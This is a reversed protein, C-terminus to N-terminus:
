WLAPTTVAGGVITMEVRLDTLAEPPTDLPSGSLVAFDAWKGPTLSGRNTEDGSAIAGGMTYAYLAERATIAQAPAVQEGAVDKRLIAAQMGLLPNDNKVVPADSSLAVELGADLMARVPYTGPLLSDPLYKRFNGGLEYIFITQPVVIVGAARARRLHDPTPLGFHEIRHRKGPLKEYVNLVQEIAVDGIAHIGIRLGAQHAELALEYLEELEFRPVGTDNKHRYPISLAATAGSLGGDAFFKVSDVHLHDSHYKEPLPLTQTGGDPRRIKMVNLRNLLKKEADMKQYVALLNPMVGPDTASTIGYSLQHRTAATIMATYDDATPEPIHNFVLGLATEHLVGTPIGHEDRDIRGGPPPLTDATIGAIELAKSNVVAIHACTRILYAPRDPLVADLDHRTPHRGEVMQAENYGRGMFWQGDRLNASFVAMKQQLEPLSGVGRVDLMSTLLHGVKWVHVHADNFGPILTCGALDFKRTSAQALPLIEDNSGVALIKGNQVAVAEARPLKQDQTLLLGHYFITDVM